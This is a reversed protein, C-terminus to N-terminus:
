RRKGKQERHLQKEEDPNQNKKEIKAIVSVKKGEVFEPFETLFSELGGSLL